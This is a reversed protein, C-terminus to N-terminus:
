CTMGCSYNWCKWIADRLLQSGGKKNNRGEGGRLGGRMSERDRFTAPGRCSAERMQTPGGDRLM